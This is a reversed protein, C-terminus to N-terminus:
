IDCPCITMELVLEIFWFSISFITTSCFSGSLPIDSGRHPWSLICMLSYVFVCTFTFLFVDKWSIFSNGSPISQDATNWHSDITEDGVPKEQTKRKTQRYFIWIITVVFSHFAGHIWSQSKHHGCCDEAETRLSCEHARRHGKDRMFVLHLRTADKQREPSALQGQKRDFNTHCSILVLFYMYNKQRTSKMMEIHSISYELSRHNHTQLQRAKSDRKLWEQWRSIPMGAQIM